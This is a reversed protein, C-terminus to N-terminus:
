NMDLRPLTRQVFDYAAVVGKAGREGGNVAEGVLVHSFCEMHWQRHLIQAIQREFATVSSAAVDCLQFRLLREVECSTRQQPRPKCPQGVAVRPQEDREM